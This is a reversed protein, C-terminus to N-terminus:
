AKGGGCQQGDWLPDGAVIINWPCCTNVGSECYYDTHPTICPQLTKGTHM